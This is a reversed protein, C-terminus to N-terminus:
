TNSLIKVHWATSHAGAICTPEYKHLTVEKRDILKIIYKGGIDLLSTVCMKKPVLLKSAVMKNALVTCTSQTSWRKWETRIQSDYIDKYKETRTSVNYYM